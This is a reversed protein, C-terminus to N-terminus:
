APLTRPLRSLDGLGLSEAQASRRARGPKGAPRCLHQCQHYPDSRSPQSFLSLAEEKPEYVLIGSRMSRVIRYVSGEVPHARSELVRLIRVNFPRPGPPRGLPDLLLIGEPNADIVVAVHMCRVSMRPHIAGFTLLTPYSPQPRQRRLLRVVREFSFSGWWHWRADYVPGYQRVVVAMDEYTGGEYDPNSRALCFFSFARQRDVPIGMFSLLMGVSYVGCYNSRVSQRLFCPLRAATLSM